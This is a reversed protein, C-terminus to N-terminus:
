EDELRAYHEEYEEGKLRAEKALRAEEEAELQAHDEEEEVRRRAELDTLVGEESKM